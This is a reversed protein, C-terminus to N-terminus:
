EWTIALDKLVEIRKQTNPHTSLFEPPKNGFLGRNAYDMRSLASALALPDETLHSGELDANYERTRSLKLQLLTIITPIVMILMLAMPNIHVVGFLLLPFLIILIFTAFSVFGSAVRGILQTLTSIILDGNAIHSIEHALIANLERTNMTSLLGESVAIVPKEKNGTSFAMNMPSPILFVKPLVELGAKIGLHDVLRYLEPYHFPPIYQARHIRLALSHAKQQIFVFSFFITLGGFIFGLRGFLSYALFIFLTAIGVFILATEILNSLRNKSYKYDNVALM